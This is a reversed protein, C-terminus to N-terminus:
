YEKDQENFNTKSPDIEVNVTDEEMDQDIPLARFKIEMLPYLGARNLPVSAEGVEDMNALIIDAITKAVAEFMERIQRRSLDSGVPAPPPVAKILFCNVKGCKACGLGVMAGELAKYHSIKFEEGCGVCKEIQYDM